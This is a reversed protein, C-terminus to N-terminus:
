QGFASLNAKATANDPDMELVRRWQAKADPLMGSEALVVGYNNLVSPDEPARAAARRLYDRARALDGKGRWAMGVISLAEGVTPPIQDVRPDGRAVRGAEVDETLLALRAIADDFRALAVLARALYVTDSWKGGDAALLAEFERAADDNKGVRLEHRALNRRYEVVKADNMDVARRFYTEAKDNDGVRELALAYNNYFSADNRLGLEEARAFNEVASQDDVGTLGIGVAAVYRANNPELDRAIRWQVLAEKQRGLEDLALGYNYHVLPDSDGYKMAIEFETLARGTKGNEMLLTGLKLHPEYAGYNLRIAQEYNKVANAFDGLGRYADGLMAFAQEDKPAAQTLTELTRVAGAYDGAGIETSARRKAANMEANQNADKQKSTSACSALLALM